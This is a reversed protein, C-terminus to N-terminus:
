IVTVTLPIDYTYWTQGASATGRGDYYVRLATDYVKGGDGVFDVTITTGTWDNGGFLNGPLGGIYSDWTVSFSKGIPTSLTQPQDASRNYIWGYNVGANKKADM